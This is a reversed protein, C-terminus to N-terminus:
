SRGSSGPALRVTRTVTKGLRNDEDTEKAGADAESALPISRAGGADDCM